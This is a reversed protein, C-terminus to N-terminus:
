ERKVLGKKDLRERELSRSLLQAPEGWTQEM